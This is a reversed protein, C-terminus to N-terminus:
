SSLCDLSNQSCNVLSLAIIACQAEILSIKAQGPFSCELVTPCIPCLIGGLGWNFNFGSFFLQLTFLIAVMWNELFWTVLWQPWQGVTIRFAIWSSWYSASQTRPFSASCAKLCINKSVLITCREMSFVSFSNALINRAFPLLKRGLYSSSQMYVKMLIVYIIAGKKNKWFLWWLKRLSQRQILIRLNAEIFNEMEIKSQSNILNEDVSGKRCHMNRFLLHLVMIQPRLM